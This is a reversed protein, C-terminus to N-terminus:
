WCSWYDFQLALYKNYWGNSSSASMDSDPSSQRERNGEEDFMMNPDEARPNIINVNYLPENGPTITKGSM